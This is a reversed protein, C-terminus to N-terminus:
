KSNQRMCYISLCYSDTLGDHYKSSRETARWDIIPQTRRAFMISAQKTDKRSMGAFINKQWIKPPIIDYSLNLASLIGQFLGFCFGSGHYAMKGSKPHLIPKEIFTIDPKYKMFVDVIQRIDYEPKTKTSKIVPMVTKFLVEDDQLICIGGLKGIDVGAYKM